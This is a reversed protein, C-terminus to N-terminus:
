CRLREEFRRRERPLLDTRDPEQLAFRMRRLKARISRRKAESPHATFVLEISLASLAARMGAAWLGERKLEAVAAGLSEPMPEPDLLRERERLVRVRQRDEAINALDFYISFARAVTRAEDISLSAIRDALDREAQQSGVRRERALLRISEVLELAPVGASEAVVAGLMEGLM